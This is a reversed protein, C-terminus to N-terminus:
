RSEIDWQLLPRFFGSRDGAWSGVGTAANVTFEVARSDSFYNTLHPVSASVGVVFTGRNLLNAPIYCRSVYRGPARLLHREYLVPDDLDGALFIPEEQPSFLKFMVQLNRIPTTIQYEFELSLSMASDLLGAVNGNADRVRVAIPRFAKDHSAADDPPWTKTASASHGSGLYREIAENTPAHLLLQGQDLLISEPCLRAVASLNHSVFLVTRGEHMVDGIRGLCKRQFEVDGVALVEDVLLIESELYAAVAFALRVYMGSSYRKVPTDIFREIESFAVIEDFKRRVETGRMGLIAGSLYINERGTLDRDFGTGIELLSGVRGRLIARGSTPETIRTLIKLLTSKGSGNRGIVGLAQGHRVELSVGKLAWIFATTMRPRGNRSLASRFGDVLRERLNDHQYKLAGIRYQKSLDEVSIAPNSM